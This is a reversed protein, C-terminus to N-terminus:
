AWVFKNSGEMNMIQPFVNGEVLSNSLVLQCFNAKVYKFEATFFM